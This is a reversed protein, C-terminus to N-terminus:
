SPQKGGELRTAINNEIFNTLTPAAYIICTGITLRLLDILLYNRKPTHGTLSYDVKESFLEFCDRLTDAVSYVLTYLGIGIFLVFLINRRDLDWRSAAEWTGEPDDKLMMSAYKRGNAILVFCIIAHGIAMIPYFTGRYTLTPYPADLYGLISLFSVIYQVASYGSLIAVILFTLHLLDIKKM